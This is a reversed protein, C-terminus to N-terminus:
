SRRVTRSVAGSWPRRRKGPRRAIVRPGPHGSAENQANRSDRREQLWRDLDARLYRVARSGLRLFPPGDLRGSMRSQRLWSESMNIYLAADSSSFAQAGVFPQYSSASHKDNTHQNQPVMRCRESCSPQDNNM